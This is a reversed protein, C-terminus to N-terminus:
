RSISSNPFRVPTGTIIFVEKLRRPSAMTCVGVSAIRVKKLEPMSARTRPLKRTSFYSPPIPCGGRWSAAVSRRAARRAAGPARGQRNELSSWGCAPEARCERTPGFGALVMPLGRSERSDACRVFHAFLFRRARLAAPGRPDDAAPCSTKRSPRWYRSRRASPPAGPPGSRVRRRTQLRDPFQRATARFDKGYGIQVHVRPVFPRTTPVRSRRKRVPQGWYTGRDRDRGRKPPHLISWCSQRRLQRKPCSCRSADRGPNQSIRRLLRLLPPRRPLLASVRSSAGPEGPLS